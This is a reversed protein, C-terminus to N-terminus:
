GGFIPSVVDILDDSSINMTAYEGKAVFDGNVAVAYPAKADYLELVQQLNAPPSLSELELSEGNIQIKM